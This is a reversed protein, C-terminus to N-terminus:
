FTALHFDLNGPYTCCVMVIEDWVGERWEWTRLPGRIEISDGINKSHLWRGVEGNAYKKIWFKMCGDKDIGELPTYPREVQIDDDKIYVSWIPALTSADYPPLLHPPVVVTLLKTNPGSAASSAIAVPIFHSPSLPTSESTQVGRSNWPSFFYAAAAIGVTASILQIPRSRFLHPEHKRSDLSIKRQLCSKARIGGCRSSLAPHVQRLM